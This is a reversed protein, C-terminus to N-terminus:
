LKIYKPDFYQYTHCKLFTTCYLIHSGASSMTYGAQTVRITQADTSGGRRACERHAHRKQREHHEYTEPSVNSRFRFRLIFYIDRTYIQSLSNVRPITKVFFTSFHEFICLTM